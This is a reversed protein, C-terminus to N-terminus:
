LYWGWVWGLSHADAANDAPFSSRHRPELLLAQWRIEFYWNAKGHRGLSERGISFAAVPAWSDRSASFGGSGGPVPTERHIDISERLLAAGAGAGLYFGLTGPHWLLEATVPFAWRSYGEMRDHEVGVRISDIYVNREYDIQMSQASLAGEGRLRLDLSGPGAKLIPGVAELHGGTGPGFATQTSWDWGVHFGLGYRRRDAFDDAEENGVVIHVPGSVMSYIGPCAAYWLPFLMAAGFVSGLTANEGPEFELAFCSVIGKAGPRIRLSSGSSKESGRLGGWSGTGKCDDDDDDDDRSQRPGDDRDEKPVARTEGYTTEARCPVLALCMLFGLLAPPLRM